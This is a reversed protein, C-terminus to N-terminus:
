GSTCISKGETYAVAEEYNYTKGAVTTNTVDVFRVGNIIVDREPPTAM